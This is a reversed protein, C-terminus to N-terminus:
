GQAMELFSAHGHRRGTYVWAVMVSWSGDGGHKGRGGNNGSDMAM